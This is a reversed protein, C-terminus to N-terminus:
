NAKQSIVREFHLDRKEEPEETASAALVALSAMGAFALTQAIMRSNIIKYSMSIDKRSFNYVMSVGMASLWTYGLVTYKNKLLWETTTQPVRTDVRNANDVEDEKTISFQAAHVRDAYMAARDTQTFFAGTPFSLGIFVKFPLSQRQYLKWYRQAALSGILGGIGFIIGAKAGQMLVWNHKDEYIALRESRAQRELDTSM